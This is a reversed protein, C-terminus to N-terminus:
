SAGKKPIRDARRTADDAHSYAIRVISKLQYVDDLISDAAAFEDGDLSRRLNEIFTAYRSIVEIVDRLDACASLAQSQDKLRQIRANFLKYAAGTKGQQPSAREIEDRTKRRRPRYQRQRPLRDCFRQHLRNLAGSVSVLALKTPDSPALM